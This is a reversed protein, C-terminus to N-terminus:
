RRGGSGRVIDGDGDSLVGSEAEPAASSEVKILVAPQLNLTTNSQVDHSVRDGYKKPALRAAMWKRTDVRLRDRQIGAAIRRARHFAPHRHPPSRMTYPEHSLELPRRIRGLSRQRYRAIIGSDRNNSPPKASRNRSSITTKKRAFRTPWRSLRWRMTLPTAREWTDRSCLLIPQVRMHARSRAGAYARTTSSPM